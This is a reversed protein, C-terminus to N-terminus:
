PLTLRVSDFIVMVLLMAVASPPPMEISFGVTLVKQVSDILLLLIVLLWAPSAPPPTSVSPGRVVSMLVPVTIVPLVQTLWPPPIQSSAIRTISVNWPDESVTLPAVILPLWASDAPPPRPPPM